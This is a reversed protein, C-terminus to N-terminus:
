IGSSKTIRMMLILRRQCILRAPKASNSKKLKGDNNLRFYDEKKRKTMQEDGLLQEDVVLSDSIRELKREILELEDNNEDAEDAVLDDRHNDNLKLNESYESEVLEDLLDKLDRESVFDLDRRKERRLYKQPLVYEV